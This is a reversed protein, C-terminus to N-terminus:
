YGWKKLFADLTQYYVQPLKRYGSTFNSFTKYPIGTQKAIAKYSFGLQEKILKVRPLPNKEVQM